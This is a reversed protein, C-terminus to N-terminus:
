EQPVGAAMDHAARCVPGYLLCSLSGSCQWPRSSPFPDELGTLGGASQLGLQCKSLLWMASDPGSIRSSATSLERSKMTNSTIFTQEKSDTLVESSVVNFVSPATPTFHYPKPGARCYQVTSYLFYCMPVFVQWTLLLVSPCSIKMASTVNSNPKSPHAHKVCMFMNLITQTFQEVKHHSQRFQLFPTTSFDLKIIIRIVISFHM